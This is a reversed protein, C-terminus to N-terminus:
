IPLQQLGNQGPLIIALPTVILPLTLGALLIGLTTAVFPHPRPKLGVQLYTFYGM